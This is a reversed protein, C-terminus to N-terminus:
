DNLHFIVCCNVLPFALFATNQTSVATSTSLGGCGAMERGVAAGVIEGHAAARQHGLQHDRPCQMNETKFVFVAHSPYHSIIIIHHIVTILLANSPLGLHGGQLESNSLSNEGQPTTENTEKFALSTTESDLQRHYLTQQSVPRCRVIKFFQFM